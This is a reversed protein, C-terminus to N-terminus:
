CEDSGDNEKRCIDEFKNGSLIEPQRYHFRITLNFGEQSHISAVANLQRMMMQILNFGLSTAKEWNFGPPLGSGNDAITLVMDGDRELYLLIEIEPAVADAFAYRVANTVAENIILGVAVVDGIDMQADAIEVQYTVPRASELADKLYRVLREVYTEVNVFQLSENGYLQQHIFSMARVRNQSNRIASRAADDKLYKSQFNLLSVVIQLNNKVRHHVEKILWEKEDILQLQHDVLQQLSINQRDVSEKQWQLLLLKRRKLQYIRYTVGTFACLLLASFLMIDTNVSAQRLATEKLRINMEILEKRQLNLQQKLKLEAVFQRELKRQLEKWNVFFSSDAMHKALVAAAIAGTYDGMSKHLNADMTYLTLLAVQSKNLRFVTETEALIAKAKELKGRVLYYRYIVSYAFQATNLKDPPLKSVRKYLSNALRGATDFQKLNILGSLRYRELTIDKIEDPPYHHMKFRNLVSMLSDMYSLKNYTHALNYTIQFVSVPDNNLEAIHLSKNYCLIASDYKELWYLAVGLRNYITCTLPSISDRAQLAIEAAKKGYEYGKAYNCLQTEVRNLLDYAGQVEMIHESEYLNIAKKLLRRSKLLDDAMMCFDAVLQLTRACEVRLGNFEFYKAAEEYYFIRLNLEDDNTSYADGLQYCARALMVFMRNERFIRIAKNAYLRASDIKGLLNYAKGFYMCAGGTGRNFHLQTSLSDIRSSISIIRFAKVTDPDKGYYISDAMKLYSDVITTDALVRSYRHQHPYYLCLFFLVGSVLSVGYVTKMSM